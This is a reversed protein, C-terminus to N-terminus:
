DRSSHFEKWEHKCASCHLKKRQFPLPAGLFLSSILAMFPQTSRVEETNTSGCQPCVPMAEEAAEDAEVSSNQELVARAREADIANVVVKVGGLAASYLPNIGIINDDAIRSEIGEAELRSCALSAEVPQNFTAVVIPDWSM